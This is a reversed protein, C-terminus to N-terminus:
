EIQCPPCIGTASNQLSGCKKCPKWGNGKKWKELRLATMMLSRIDESAEGGAQRAATEVQELDSKTLKIGELREEDPQEKPVRRTHIRGAKFIIDQLTTGGVRRNLKSIIDAKYFALENAWVSSKTRVFLLGDKVFEPQAAGAVQEGVVEDWVLLCTNEKVRTGLNLRELSASILAGLGYPPRGLTM